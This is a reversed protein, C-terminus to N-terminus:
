TGTDGLVPNMPERPDRHYKRKTGLFGQSVRLEPLFRALLKLIPRAGPRNFIVLVIEGKIM